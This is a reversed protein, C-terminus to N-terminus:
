NEMMAEPGQVWWCELLNPCGRRFCVQVINTFFGRYFARPGEKRKMTAVASWIGSYTKPEGQAVFRTRLVDLPHSVGMAMGGAAAGSSNVISVCANFGTM